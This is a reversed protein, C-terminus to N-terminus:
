GEAGQEVVAERDEKSVERTLALGLVPGDHPAADQGGMAVVAMAGGQEAGLAARVRAEAEEVGVRM